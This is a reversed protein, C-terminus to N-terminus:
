RIPDSPRNPIAVDIELVQVGNCLMRVTPVEGERTEVDIRVQSGVPVPARFRISVTGGYVMGDDLCAQIQDVVVCALLHGHVIPVGFQTQAAFDSDLHLPNDDQVLDAWRRVRDTGCTFLQSHM